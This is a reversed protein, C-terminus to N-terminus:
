IYPMARAHTLSFGGDIPIIAGTIYRARKSSLFTFLKACEEPNGVRQSPIMHGYQAKANAWVEDPLIPTEILGPCITNVRIGKLAGAAQRCYNAVASKGVYYTFETGMIFVAMSATISVSPNESKRLLPACLKVFIMNSRVLINNSRDMTEYTAEEVTGQLAAGANLILSDLKGNFTKDAFAVAAEIEEIKEVDCQFPIFKDGMDPLKKLNRGMGIVTAGQALFEKATSLGIGSTAGTIMVNYGNLM